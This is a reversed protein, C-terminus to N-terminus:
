KKLIVLLPRHDSAGAVAESDIIKSLDWEVSRKLAQSVLVYDIRTYTDQFDWYHTWYQGRSDKLAIMNLATPGKGSGHVTKVTPSNRTDNFDGYVVLRAQPDSQLISDLERRLLHAEQRRMEEQDGEEVERKSKLHVGLFRFAGAPTDITADLIGRQMAYEKGSIQYNLNEHVVTKGIPYRSLIVLSRTADAGRNLHFHPLDLGADALHKQLDKVDGENGIESIGLIDPKVSLIAETVAHREAEPKPTGPVQKGKVYRDMTLWNEVNYTVVRVHTGDIPAEDQVPPETSVPAPALVSPAAPVPAPKPASAPPHSQGSWDSSQDKDKCASSALALFFAGLFGPAIKFIAPLNRLKM